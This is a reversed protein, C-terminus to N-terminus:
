LKNFTNGAVKNLQEIDKSHWAIHQILLDQKSFARGCQPVICMFLEVHKAETHKTLLQESQFCEGCHMEKCKFRLRTSKRTSANEMQVKDIALQILNASFLPLSVTCPITLEELSPSDKVQLEDLIPSGEDLIPSGEVQLEEFLKVTCVRFDSIFEKKVLTNNIVISIKTRKIFNQFMKPNLIIKSSIQRSFLHPIEKFLTKVHLAKIEHNRIMELMAIKDNGLQIIFIKGHIQLRRFILTWHSTKLNMRAKTIYIPQKSLRRLRGFKILSKKFRKNM